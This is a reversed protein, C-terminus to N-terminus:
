LVADAQQCSLIKTQKESYPALEHVVVSRRNGFVGPTNIDLVNEAKIFM